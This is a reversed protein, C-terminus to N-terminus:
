RGHPLPSSLQHLEGKFIVPAGRHDAMSTPQETIMIETADPPPLPLKAIIESSKDAPRDLQAVRVPAGQRRLWWVTYANEAPPVPLGQLDLAAEGIRHSVVLAGGIDARNRVELKVIKGDPAAFIREFEDRFAAERQMEAMKNDASTLRSQMQILRAQLRNLKRQFSHARDGYLGVMETAVIGCALTIALAMGAIAGWFGPQRLRSVKPPLAGPVGMAPAASLSAADGAM